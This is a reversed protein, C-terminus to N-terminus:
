TIVEKRNKYILNVAKEVEKLFIENEGMPEIYNKQLFKIVEADSLSDLYGINHPIATIKNKMYPISRGLNKLNYRSNRDYKGILYLSKNETIPQGNFYDDIVPKYQPLNIVMRDSEYLLMQLEDNFGSPADVFVFDYLKDVKKLIAPFLNLIDRRFTLLDKTTGPVIHLQEGFFNLSANKITEENLENIILSRILMDIGIGEMQEMYRTSLLAREMSYNAPQLNIVLVKSKKVFAMMMAIVLLNSTTGSQGTVPSWFM